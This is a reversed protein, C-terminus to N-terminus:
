IVQMIEERRQCLGSARHNLYLLVLAISRQTSGYLLHFLM